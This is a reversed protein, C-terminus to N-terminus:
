MCMCVSVTVASSLPSASLTGAVAASVSMPVVTAVSKCKGIGFHISTGAETCIRDTYPTETYLTVTIAGRVLLGCLAEGKTKNGSPPM